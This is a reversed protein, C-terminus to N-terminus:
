LPFIKKHLILTLNRLDNHVGRWSSNIKYFRDVLTRILGVKFNFSTFSFYNTLLGTFTRKCTHFVSTNPSCCNKNVLVDLFTLKGDVEKKMTFQINPPQSNIHNYFAVTDKSLLLYVFRTMSM